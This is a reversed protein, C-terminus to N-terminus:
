LGKAKLQSRKDMPNSGTLVEPDPLHVTWAYDRGRSPPAETSVVLTDWMATEGPHSKCYLCDCKGDLAQQQLERPIRVYVALKTRAIIAAGKMGAM